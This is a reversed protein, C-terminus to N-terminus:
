RKRLYDILKKFLENRSKKREQEIELTRCYDDLTEM